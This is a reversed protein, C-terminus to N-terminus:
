YALQFLLAKKPTNFKEDLECFQQCAILEKRAGYVIIRSGYRYIMAAVAGCSSIAILISILKKGTDGILAKGFNIAIIEDRVVADEPSVVTIYAINTLVNYINSTTVLKPEILEDTLDEYTFLVQLMADGYSGVQEPFTRQDSVTNNFINAWHNKLNVNHLQILGVIIIVSLASIKVAAFIINIHAALRSSYIHYMTIFTLVAISICRIIIFDKSFYGKPDLYDGSEGRIAYLIYQSTAYADAIFIQAIIKEPKQFAENLYLLEGAGDPLMESLLAYVFSGLFSFLGGIIWFILTIGPSKTLRWVNGPTLFIGINVINVPSSNECRLNIILALLSFNRKGSGIIENINYAVGGTTGLIKDFNIENATHENTEEDM